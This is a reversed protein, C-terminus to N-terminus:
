PPPQAFRAGPFSEAEDRRVNEAARPDRPPDLVIGRALLGARDDYRLESVWSPSASARVFGVEVVRSDAAEGFQTGLGPRQEARPPSPELTARREEASKSAPRAAPAAAGAASGGGMPAPASKMAPVPASSPADRDDSFGDTPAARHMAPRRWVIPPKEEFFAVGVV